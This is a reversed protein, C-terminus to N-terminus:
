PAVRLAVSVDRFQEGTFVLLKVSDGPAHKGILDALKEPTDISHGDVAVIIDTAPKLAAKEAPSSPAVAVVRVGHVSGGREPEGRIGLWPAPAAPAPSAALTLFSRITSVPAGLVVSKCAAQAIPAVPTAAPYWTGTPEAPVTQPGSAAGKCARVLVGVVGGTSDLLPAGAVPAGKLDVDLMRLLAAGDRAHADVQGKVAAVAPGLHTGHAPLMARLEQGAPDADSASLGETWKLSAPVLLALDSARDSRGVKAHVLTGDSYRVDAGDGGALGSLATLVRGDGSLVTGIAMPVGNRELGVVGRLVHEYLQQPTLQPEGVQAVPGTPVDEYPGSADAPGAARAAGTAVSAPQPATVGLPQFDAVGPVPQASAVGMVPDAGHPLPPLWPSTSPAQALATSAFGVFGVIGPGILSRKVLHLM